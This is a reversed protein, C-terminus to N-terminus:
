SLIKAGSTNEEGTQFGNNMGYNRQQIKTVNIGIGITYNRIQQM